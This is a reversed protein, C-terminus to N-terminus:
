YNLYLAKKLRMFDEITLTDGERIKLKRGNTFLIEIEEDPTPEPNKHLKAGRIDSVRLANVGDIQNSFQIFIKNILFRRHQLFSIGLITPFILAVSFVFLTTITLPSMSGFSLLIVLFIAMLLMFSPVFFLLGLFYIFIFSNKDESYLYKPNIRM